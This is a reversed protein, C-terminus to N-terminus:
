QGDACAVLKVGTGCLDEAVVDGAKVPGEPLEIAKVAEMCRFLMSKPVPAATRVPLMLGSRLRVTTTLTRVPNTVEAEAYRKGRVCSYGTIVPAEGGTETEIECGKPCIICTFTKKM